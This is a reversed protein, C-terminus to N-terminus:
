EAVLVDTLVSPIVSAGDFLPDFLSKVVPHNDRELSAFFVLMVRNHHYCMVVHYVSTSDDLGQWMHSMVSIPLGAVQGIEM